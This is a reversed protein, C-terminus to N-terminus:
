YRKYLSFVGGFFGIADTSDKPLVNGNKGVKYITSVDALYTTDNQVLANAQPQFMKELWNNSSAYWIFIPNYMKSIGKSYFSYRVWCHSVMWVQNKPKNLIQSWPNYVTDRKNETLSLYYYSGGRWYNSRDNFKFTEDPKLLLLERDISENKQVVTLFRNTPAKVLMPFSKVSQERPTGDDYHKLAVEIGVSDPFEVTVTAPIHTMSQYIRGDSLKVTLKYKGNPVRKLAYNVDGYIGKGEHTFVVTKENATGLPGQVSVKANTEAEWILGFLTTIDILQDLLVP